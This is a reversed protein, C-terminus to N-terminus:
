PAACSGRSDFPAECRSSLDKMRVGLAGPWQRPRRWTRDTGSGGLQTALRVRYAGLPDLPERARHPRGDWGAIRVVPVAVTAMSSTHPWPRIWDTRGARHNM